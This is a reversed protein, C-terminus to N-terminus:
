LRGNGGNNVGPSGGGGGQEDDSSSATEYGDGGGGGRGSHRPRKTGRKAAAGGGRLPAGPRKAGRTSTPAPARVTSASTGSPVPRHTHMQSPRPQHAASTAQQTQTTSEAERWHSSPPSLSSNTSSHQNQSPLTATESQPTNSYVSVSPTTPFAGDQSMATTAMGTSGGASSPAYTYPLNYYMSTSHDGPSPTTQFQSQPQVQPQQHARHSHTHHTPQPYAIAGILTSSSTSPISSSPDGVQAHRTHAHSHPNQRRVRRQDSIYPIQQQIPSPQGAQQQQQRISPQQLQISPGGASEFEPVYHSAPHYTTQAQFQMPPPPQSPINEHFAGQQEESGVGSVGVGTGYGMQQQYQMWDYEVPQALPQDHQNHDYFSPPPIMVSSSQPPLALTTTPASSFDPYSIPPRLLRDRHQHHQHHQAPVGPVPVNVEQASPLQWGGSSIPHLSHSLQGSTSLRSPSGLCSDLGLLPRNHPIGSLVANSSSLHHPNHHPRLPSDSPPVSTINYDQVPATHVSEFVTRSKQPDPNSSSSSNPSDAM